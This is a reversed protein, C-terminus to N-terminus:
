ESREHSPSNLRRYADSHRRQWRRRRSRQDSFRRGNRRQWAFREIAAGGLGGGIAGAITNGTAGLSFQKLLGGIANGGAAGSLLQVILNILTASM